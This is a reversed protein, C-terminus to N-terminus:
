VSTRASHWQVFSIGLLVIGLGVTFAPSLVIWAVIGFVALLIVFGGHHLVYDSVFVAILALPIAIAVHVADAVSFAHRSAFRAIGVAVLVVGFAAFVIQSKEIQMAEVTSAQM